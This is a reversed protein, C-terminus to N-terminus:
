GTEDIVAADWIAICFHDIPCVAALLNDDVTFHGNHLILLDGIIVLEGIFLLFDPAEAKVLLTATIKVLFGRKHENEVGKHM